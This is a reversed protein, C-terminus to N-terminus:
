NPTSRQCYNKFSSTAPLREIVSKDCALSIATELDRCYDGDGSGNACLQRNLRILEDYDVQLECRKAKKNTETSPETSVTFPGGDPKFGNITFDIIQDQVQRAWFRPFRPIAQRERASKLTEAFSPNYLAFDGDIITAHNVEDPYFCSRTLEPSTFAFADIISSNDSTNDNAVGIIQVPIQIRSMQDKRGVERGLRQLTEINGADFDCIGNRKRYGEELQGAECDDGFGAQFRPLATGVIRALLGQVSPAKFFPTILLGRTWVNSEGSAKLEAGKILTAVALGGGLSLGMLVRPGPFSQAIRTMEEAYLYYDKTQLPIGSDDDQIVNSQKGSRVQEALNRGDETQIRRDLEAKNRYVRGNGPLTPLLVAYGEDVLERAVNIFQTPCGTFGHYIIVLGQAKGKPLLQQPACGPQFSIGAQKEIYADWLKQTSEPLGSLTLLEATQLQESGLQSSKCSFLKLIILAMLLTKLRGMTGTGSPM